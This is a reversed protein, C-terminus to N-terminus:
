GGDYGESKILEGVNVECPDSAYPRGTDKETYAFQLTVENNVKLRDADEKPVTVVMEGSGTVTPTYQFFTGGQRVYFEINEVTTLDVGDVAVALTNQIKQRM